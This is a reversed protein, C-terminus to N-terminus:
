WLSGKTAPLSQIRLPPALSALSAPQKSPQAAVSFSLEIKLSRTCFYIAMRYGHLTCTHNCGLAAATPNNNLADTARQDM